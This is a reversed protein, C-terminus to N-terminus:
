FPVSRELEIDYVPLGRIAEARRAGSLYTLNGVADRSERYKSVVYGEELTLQRVADNMLDRRVFYANNGASNCGIFGAGGTILVHQDSM